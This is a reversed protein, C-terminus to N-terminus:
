IRMEEASIDDVYALDNEILKLAFAYLTDFYDSAYFENEWEFGLWRIDNKISEVYETDETVPNTDDFRLNTYGQFKQTLGFNLCISSAHGIHLYGNPEPPFRTIIKDYKGSQLDNEIIEEIFNLSKEESM